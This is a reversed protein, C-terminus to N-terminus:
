RTATSTKSSHEPTPSALPKQGNQYGAAGPVVKVSQGDLLGLSPDSVIRDTPKLGSTVQATLGLNRGLTVKRLRVRDDGEVVAVQMGESRFLLAQSPVVLIGPDNPFIMTVDVFAGPVLMGDPHEIEFETVITRTSQVVKGAQTLFKVPVAAATGGPLRVEATLGPKLIRAFAQPVSVFVRLKHIDAVAYPPLEQKNATSQGGGGDIYDGVNIRRATVIGGFPAKLDKFGLKAKYNDVEQQAAAVDAKAALATANKDDIQQQAIDATGTLQNYRSATLAAINYQAEAVRLKALSQQYQADLTPTEISALVEGASVGAGYDKFWNKVYGSVQGFIQAENWAEIQGPLTLSQTPSGHQPSVVSVRPVATDTARTQLHELATRRMWVGYGAFGLAAVAGLGVVIRFTRGTSM